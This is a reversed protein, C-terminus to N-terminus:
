GGQLWLSTGALTGGARCHHSKIPALGQPLLLWWLATVLFPTLCFQWLGWRSGLEERARLGGHGGLSGVWDGLPSDISTGEWLQKVWLFRGRGQGSWVGMRPLSGGM